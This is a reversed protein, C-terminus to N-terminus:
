RLGVLVLRRCSRAGGEGRVRWREASARRSPPGRERKRRRDCEYNCYYGLTYTFLSEFNTALMITGGGEGGGGDLSQIHM